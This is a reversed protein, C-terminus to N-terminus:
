EIITPAMISCEKLPIAGNLCQYMVMFPSLVIYFLVFKRKQTSKKELESVITLCLKFGFIYLCVSSNKNRVKEGLSRIILITIVCYVEQQLYNVDLYMARAM